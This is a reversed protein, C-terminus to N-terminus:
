VKVSENDGQAQPVLLREVYKAMLDVELNVKDGVSRTGLNTLTMTHPILAVSFTDKAVDFCTLSVGDVTISGKEVLYRDLSSNGGPKGSTGSAIAPTPLKVRLDPGPQLITGVGDVHGQVLHGGIRDSYRMARELNVPEYRDWESLTTRSLTEESVDAEWWGKGTGKEINVVTLCCGNVAVSDDVKLDQLILDAAFRFRFCEGAVPKREILHSREEILGTFM